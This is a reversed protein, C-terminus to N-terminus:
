MSGTLICERPTLPHPTTPPHDPWQRDTIIRGEAEAERGTISRQSMTATRMQWLGSSGKLLVTGRLFPNSISHRPVGPARDSWEMSKAPGSEEDRDSELFATHLKYPLAESCSIKRNETSAALQHSEALSRLCSTNKLIAGSAVPVEQWM